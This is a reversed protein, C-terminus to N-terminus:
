IKNKPLFFSNRLPRRVGLAGLDAPRGEGGRDDLKELLVESLGELELVFVESLGHLVEKTAVIPLGLDGLLAELPLAVLVAPGLLLLAEAPLIAMVVLIFFLLLPSRLLSALALLITALLGWRAILLCKNDFRM